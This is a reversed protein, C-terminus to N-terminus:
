SRPSKLSWIMVLSSRTMRLSPPSQDASLRAYLQDFRSYVNQNNNDNFMEAAALHNSLYLRRVGDDNLELVISGFQNIQLSEVRYASYPAQGDFKLSSPTSINIKGITLQGLNPASTINIQSLEAFHLTAPGNTAQTVCGLLYDHISRESIRQVKVSKCPANPAHSAGVSQYSWNVRENDGDYVFRPGNFGEAGYMLIAQTGRSVVSMENLEGEFSDIVTWEGVLDDESLDILARILAREESEKVKMVVYLYDSGGKRVLLAGRGRSWSSDGEIEVLNRGDLSLQDPLVLIESPAAFDKPTLYFSSVEAEVRRELFVQRAAQLEARTVDIGEGVLKLDSVEREYATSDGQGERVYTIRDDSLTMSSLPTDNSFLGVPLEDCESDLDIKVVQYFEGKSELNLYQQFIVESGDYQDLSEGGRSLSYM